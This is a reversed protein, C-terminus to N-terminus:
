LLGKRFETGLPYVYIDKVPVRLNNHRDQRSRGTTSGLRQWNAARYCTARFRDREVFTELLALPHGYKAQWDASIRRTVRALIWSALQPLQVWPLVLFRSNNALRPLGSERQGASWGIWQDRAACQWAAAGFELVALLRGSAARVTYQVNQGVPRRYGLYHFRALAARVEARAEAQRSIEELRLPTVSALEGKIPADDWTREPPAVLRHRNPSLVRRAPLEIWGRQALKTLLTRAAMDKWQGVGNRWDWLACLERSLRYRSWEPHTSLLARVQTLDAATFDRGQLRCRELM